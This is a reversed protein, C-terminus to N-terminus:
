VTQVCKATPLVSFRQGLAAICVLIHRTNIATAPKLKGGAEKDDKSAKGKGKFNDKEGSKANSSSKKSPAM